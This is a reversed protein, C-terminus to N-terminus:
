KFEYFKKFFKKIIKKAGYLTPYTKVVM